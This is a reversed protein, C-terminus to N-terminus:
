LCPLLSKRALRNRKQSWSELIAMDRCNRVNLKSCMLLYPRRLQRGRENISAIGNRRTARPRSANLGSEIDGKQPSASAGKMLVRGLRESTASSAAAKEAFPQGVEGQAKPRSRARSQVQSRGRDRRGHRHLRPLHDKPSAGACDRVGPMQAAALAQEIAQETGQADRRNLCRLSSCIGILGDPAALHVGSLAARAPRAGGM